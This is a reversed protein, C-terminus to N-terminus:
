GAKRSPAPASAVTTEVSEVEIASLGGREHVTGSVKVTEMALSKAKQYPIENTENMTLLYIHGDHTLVAMPAGDAICKAESAKSAPGGAGHALYTGLEVLEGSVTMTRASAAPHAAGHTAPAPATRHAQATPASKTQAFGAGAALVMASTLAIGFRNM